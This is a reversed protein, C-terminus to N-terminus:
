EQGTWADVRITLKYRVQGAHGYQYDGGTYKRSLQNVFTLDDYREFAVVEGRVEVYRQPHKDDLLSMALRPDRQLNRYKRTSALVSILVHEGDWLFWVPNVEPRGEGDVTALHGLAASELLDHFRDPVPANPM